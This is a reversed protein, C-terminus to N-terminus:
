IAEYDTYEKLAKLVIRKQRDNGNVYIYEMYEKMEDARRISRIADLVLKEDPLINKM